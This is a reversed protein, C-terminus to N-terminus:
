FTFPCEFQYNKVLVRFFDAQHLYVQMLLSPFIEFRINPFKMRIYFFKTGTYLYKVKICLIFVQHKFICRSMHFQNNQCRTVNPCAYKVVFCKKILQSHLACFYYSCCKTVRYSTIPVSLIEQLLAHLRNKFVINWAHCANIVGKQLKSM